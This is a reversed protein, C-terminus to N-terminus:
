NHAALYWMVERRLGETISIKPMFGLEKKFRKTDYVDEALWKQITVYLSKSEGGRFFSVFKSLALAMNAPIKVPFTSKGLAVRLIEVIELMTCPAGSVNFVRMGSAPSTAVLRCARAADCKHLLSKRNSGDGIWFFRGQNIAKILRKTNGPDGEGYLTAFRLITLPIKNKNAIKIARLEGDYKSKAYPGVPKCTADEDYFGETYPGYVSVSSALVFHEVGAKVAANVLNGTGVVNVQRFQSELSKRRLSLHALGAAHIVTGAGSIVDFLKEQRTIDAKRYQVNLRGFEKGIDTGRTPLGQSVLEEIIAKGLFGNAGTVLIPRLPMTCQNM